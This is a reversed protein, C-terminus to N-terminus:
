TRKCRALVHSIHRKVAHGAAVVRLARYMMASKWQPTQEYLAAERFVRAAIVLDFQQEVLWDHIVASGHTSDGFIAYLFPLRPVSAFDTQFGAPVEIEGVIKSQFVLPSLLGWTARGFLSRSEAIKMARLPTAFSV